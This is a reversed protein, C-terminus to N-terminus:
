VLHYVILNFIAFKEEAVKDYENDAHPPPPPAAPDEVNCAFMSSRRSKPFMRKRQHEHIM